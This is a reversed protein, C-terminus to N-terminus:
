FSASHRPTSSFLTHKRRVCGQKEAAGPHFKIHPHASIHVELNKDQPCEWATSPYFVAKEYSSNHTRGLPGPMLSDVSRLLRNTMANACKNPHQEILSSPLHPASCWAYTSSVTAFGRTVHSASVLPASFLLFSSERSDTDRKEVWGAHEQWQRSSFLLAPCVSVLSFSLFFWHLLLIAPNIKVSSLATHSFNSSSCEVSIGHSVPFCM